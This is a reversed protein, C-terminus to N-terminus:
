LSFIVAATAAGAMYMSWDQWGSGQVIVSEHRPDWYAEKVSAWLLMGVCGAIIGKWGWFHGFTFVIAYASFFHAFQAWPNAISFPVTADSLAPGHHAWKVRRIPFGPPRV